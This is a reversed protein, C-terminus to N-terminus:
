KAALRRAEAVVAEDHLHAEGKPPLQWGPANRVNQMAAYGDANIIERSGDKYKVAVSTASINLGTIKM